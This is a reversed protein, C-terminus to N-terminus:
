QAGLPLERIVRYVPGEPTLESSMVQLRDLVDSPTVPQQELTRSVARTENRSIGRRFRALTVHLSKTPRCESDPVAQAIATAIDRALMTLPAIGRVVAACLLRAEAGGGLVFAPGLEIPVAQHRQATDALREILTAVRDDGVSPLFAYTIHASDPPIPRLESPHAAIVSGIAGGYISQNHPNLLSCVFIRM